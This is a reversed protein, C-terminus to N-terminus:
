LNRVASSRFLDGYVSYTGPAVGRFVYSGDLGLPPNLVRGPTRLRYRLVPIIGGTDDKVTGRVSGGDKIRPAHPECPPNQASAMGGCLAALCPLGVVLVRRFYQNM